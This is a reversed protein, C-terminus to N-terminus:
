LDFIGKMHIGFSTREESVLNFERNSTAKMKMVYIIWHFRALQTEGANM